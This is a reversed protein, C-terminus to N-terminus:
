WLLTTATNVGIKQKLDPNKELSQVPQEGPMAPMTRQEITVHDILARPMFSPDTFSHQNVKFALRM